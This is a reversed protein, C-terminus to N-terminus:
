YKLLIMSNYGNSMNVENEKLSDSQHYGESITFVVNSIEVKEDQNSFYLYGIFGFILFLLVVIVLSVKNEM